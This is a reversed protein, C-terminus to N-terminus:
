CDDCHWRDRCIEVLARFWWMLSVAHVYLVCVSERSDEFYCVLYWTSLVNSCKQQLRKALSGVDSSIHM